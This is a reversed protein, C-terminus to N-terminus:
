APDHRLDDARASAVLRWAKRGQRFRGVGATRRSRRPARRVRGHLGAQVRAERAVTQGLLRGPFAHRTGNTHDKARFLREAARHLIASLLFRFPCSRCSVATLSPYSERIRATEPRRFPFYPMDAVADRNKM